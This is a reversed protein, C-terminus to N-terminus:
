CRVAVTAAIRASSTRVVGILGAAFGSAARPIALFASAFFRAAASAFALVLLGKSISLHICNYFCSRPTMVVGRGKFVYEVLFNKLKQHLFRFFLSLLFCFQIRFSM